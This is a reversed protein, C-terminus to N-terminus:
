AMPEPNETFYPIAPACPRFDSTRLMNQVACRVKIHETISRPRAGIAAHAGSVSAFSATQCLGERSGQCKEKTAGTVHEAVCFAKDGM